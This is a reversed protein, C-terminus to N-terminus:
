EQDSRPDEFAAAASELERRVVTGFHQESRDRALQYVAVGEASALQVICGTTRRPVSALGVEADVQDAVERARNM